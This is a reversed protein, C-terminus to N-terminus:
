WRMEITKGGGYGSFKRQIREPVGVLLLCEITRGLAAGGGM